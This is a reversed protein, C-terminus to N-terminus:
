SDDATPIPAPLPPDIIGKPIGTSGRVRFQMANRREGRTKGVFLRSLVSTCHLPVNAWRVAIHLSTHVIIGSDCSDSVAVVGVVLV